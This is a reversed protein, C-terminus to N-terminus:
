PEIIGYKRKLTLIREVSQYIRDESIEGNRVADIIAQKIGDIQVPDYPAAQNAM